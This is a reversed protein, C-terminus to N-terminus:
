QGLSQLLISSEMDGDMFHGRATEVSGDEQIISLYHADSTQDERADSYAWAALMNLMRDGYDFAEFMVDNMEYGFSTIGSDLFEKKLLWWYPGFARYLIRNESLIRRYEERMRTLWEEPTLGDQLASASLSQLQEVSIKVVKNM